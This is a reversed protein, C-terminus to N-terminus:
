APRTSCSCAWSTPPMWCSRRRLITLPACRTVAWRKFNAFAYYQVADPLAGGIGAHDQHDCTGKVKVSKGNLFFGKEPDFSITRIGFRTEYRDAIQGGAEVETVLKYLNREELSWLAFQSVTVEQEYTHDENEPVSAPDTTAKAVEKGSPDLVTSTVRTSQAGKGHTDVETRIRLTAEGGRVESRVFTGWQKVHVPRTKVLWVHRYIGAGEYFWGDSETADVRVLMVNRGGPTVFDTVEFSFPDYGGSHRGIYFGNFVVM